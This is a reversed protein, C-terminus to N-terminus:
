PRVCARWRLQTQTLVRRLCFCPPTSTPYIHAQLGTCTYTYTRTTTDAVTNAPWQSPSMCAGSCCMTAHCNLVVVKRRVSVVSGSGSCGGQMSDVRCIHLTCFLQRWGESVQLFRCNRGVIEERTYGTLAIFEPSAHVIPCDPLRPDALVFAAQVKLLSQLLSSPLSCSGEQPGTPLFCTLVAFSFPKVLANLIPLHCSLYYGTTHM